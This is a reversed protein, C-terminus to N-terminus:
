RGQIHNELVPVAAQHLLKGSGALSGTTLAHKVIRQVQETSFEPTDLVSHDGLLYRAEVDAILKRPDKLADMVYRRDDPELSMITPLSIPRGEKMQLAADILLKERWFESDHQATIQGVKNKLQVCWGLFRAWERERERIGRRLFTLEVKREELRADRRMCEYKNLNYRMTPDSLEEITIECERMELYTSSLTRCRSFFERLAQRYTGYDTYGNKGLIFHDIQYESHCTQLDDLLSGLVESNIIM